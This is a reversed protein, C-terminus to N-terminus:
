TLVPHDKVSYVLTLITGSYIAAIDNLAARPWPRAAGHPPRPTSGSTCPTASSSKCTERSRSPKACCRVAKMSAAAYHPALLRALASESNYASKWIAHTLLERETELLQSGPRVQRLPLHSATQRSTKKAEALDVQTANM